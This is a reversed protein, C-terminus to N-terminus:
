PQHGGGTPTHATADEVINNETYHITSPFRTPYSLAIDYMTRVYQIYTNHCRALEQEPIEFKSLKFRHGTGRM